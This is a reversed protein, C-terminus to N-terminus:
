YCGTRNSKDVFNTDVFDINSTALYRLLDIFDKCAENSGGKATYEKLSFIMNKCDDTVYFKPSNTAGLPKTEDWSLLNNILQIGHEIEVGPAPRVVVDAEDLESIITTAGELTQREAAGMRPDIFREYVEEEDELNRILDVYDRIGKGSGKQAPGPKGEATSGPLAWEGYSEDPWERYVWWTGAADVAVWCMAWNKSGGPDIAMYRTVKYLPNKVWPLADRKIVNLDERFSPFVGAISKTPVGYARALVEDKPRGKLTALFDTTDIFANDETWFYHILAPSGGWERTLSEQMIPLDRKVITSHRKKLTKTRGMLDQVLPTWGNLTTFTLIIRGKYDILRYLLTEFFKQPMEEDGWIGHCKFGEAIQADQQYQKYNGFKIYGGRRYGPLPPFICINDTFGNKQSYTISHNTGKKTPLNKISLPIAEWIFRQQEISREESVHYCRVEAEPITCAMWVALRSALMSKSSRNGGCVVHVSHSVWTDMVDKWSPLIWGGGVPNLEAQKEAYARAEQYRQLKDLPWADTMSRPLVPVWPIGFDPKFDSAYHTKRPM